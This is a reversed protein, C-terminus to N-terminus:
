QFLNILTVAQFLEGVLQRWDLGTKAPVIIVDKDQLEFNKDLQQGRILANADVLFVKAEQGEVRVLAAKTPSAKDKLFGGAKSLVDLLRDGEKIAYGGPSNVAGFVLVQWRIEPVFITDGPKVEINAAMNYDKLISGVNVIFVTEGDRVSITVDALVTVAGYGAHVNEFSISNGM